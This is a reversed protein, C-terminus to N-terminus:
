KKQQKQRNKRKKESPVTKGGGKVQRRARTYFPLFGKMSPDAVLKKGKVIVRQAGLKSANADIVDTVDSWPHHRFVWRGFCLDFGDENYRIEYKGLAMLAFCLLLMFALIVCSEANRGGWLIEVLLLLTLFVAAVLGVRFYIGSLGVRGVRNWDEMEQKVDSVIRDKARERLRDLSPLPIEIYGDDKEQEIPKKKKGM